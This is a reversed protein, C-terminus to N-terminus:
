LFDPADIGLLRWAAELDPVIPIEGHGESKRQAAFQRSLRLILGGAAVYVLRRGPLVPGASAREILQELPVDVATVRRLDVVVKDLANTAAIPEVLRDVDAVDQPQLRDSFEVLLVTHTRDIAISFV